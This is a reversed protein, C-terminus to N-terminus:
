MGYADFHGQFLHPNLFTAERGGRGGKEQGERARYRRRERERRSSLPSQIECGKANINKLFSTIWSNQEKTNVGFSKFM